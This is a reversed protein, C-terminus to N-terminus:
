MSPQGCEASGRIADDVKKKDADIYWSTVVFCLAGALAVFTTIYLSDQLSNWDNWDGDYQDSYSRKIADAVAGVVYPSIADGLAHSALIQFAEASSRRPPIVVYLVMDAVIAWNLCLFVEAFFIFAWTVGPYYRSALIAFFLFPACVLMGLACIIPDATVSHTRLRQSAYSGLGVGLIGAFVTILGFNFSVETQGIEHNGTNLRIGYMMFQPAWFSLAGAVFAVCTFGFTGGVFSRNRTLSKLDTLYSTSSVHQGGEASGRPPDVLFLAILLVSLLGFGPTVRLAWQWHGSAKAVGSAIMYGLGSGVPIAFYFLGLMQSRRKGTFLDSIITPAITSYSAEGVGVAARIVLLLPFLHPPIFSGALSMLSWFFIGICMLLKRSYRDGLYGFLPAFLMYGIIFMTQLLGQMSKDIGYYVEVDELVGAITFRDIYNLLNVFFLIAVTIYSRKSTNSPPLSVAFSDTGSDSLVTPPRNEM